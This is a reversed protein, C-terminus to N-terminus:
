DGVPPLGLQTPVNANRGALIVSIAYATQPDLGAMIVAASDARMRGLFGAAFQPNMTEFLASAEKGKMSEYVATLRVLDDEAATDALAMTSKLENEALILASLNDEVRAEAVALAQMRDAMASERVELLIEREQLQTLVEAIDNETAHTQPEAEVANGPFNGQSALQSVERAIAQGTEGSLRVAGSTVLLLAIVWLVGRAPNKRRSEKKSIQNKTTNM